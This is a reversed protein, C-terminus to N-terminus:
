WSPGCGPVFAVPQEVPKVAPRLREEIEARSPRPEGLQRMLLDRLTDLWTATLVALEAYFRSRSRMTVRAAFDNIWRLPHEDLMQALVHWDERATAKRAAHAIYLLQLVLHDDPRQRWDTAALGAATYIDRLQFMSTQCVLHDDDTWFSECPSVGYAGTLYIAAYEAALDDMVDTDPTAPLRALEDRMARWAVAVERSAPLLGLCDPFKADHLAAILDATLERDHLAALSEADEAILDAAMRLTQEPPVAGDVKNLM